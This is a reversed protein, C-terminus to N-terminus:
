ESAETTGDRTIARALMHAGIPVTIFQFAVVVAIKTISSLNDMQVAAGIACCLVGLTAPKTAAHMRSTTHQLRHLGVAAIVAMSVGVFFFVVSAIDRATSM